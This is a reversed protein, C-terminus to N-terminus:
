FIKKGIPVCFNFLAVSRSVEVGGYEAAVRKMEEIDLSWDEVKLYNNVEFQNQQFNNSFKMNQIIGQVTDVDCTFQCISGEKNERFRWNMIGRTDETYAIGVIEYLVYDTGPRRKKIENKLLAYIKQITKIEPDIAMERPYVWQPLPLHFLMVSIIYLLLVGLLAGVWLKWKKRRM